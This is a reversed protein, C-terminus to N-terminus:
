PSSFVKLYQICPAAIKITALFTKSQATRLFMIDVAAMRTAPRWTTCLQPSQSTLTGIPEAANRMSQMPRVGFSEVENQTGVEEDFVWMQLQLVGCDVQSDCLGRLVM